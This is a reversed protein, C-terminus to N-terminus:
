FFRLGHEREHLRKELTNNLAFLSGFLDVSLEGGEGPADVQGATHINAYGFNGGLAGIHFFVDLTGAFGYSLYVIDADLDFVEVGAQEVEGATEVVLDDEKAPLAALWGDFVPVGDFGTEFAALGYVVAEAAAGSRVVAGVLSEARITSVFLM